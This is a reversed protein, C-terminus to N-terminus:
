FSEDPNNIPNPSASSEPLKEPSVWLSCSSRSALEWWRSAEKAVQDHAPKTEPKHITAHEDKKM